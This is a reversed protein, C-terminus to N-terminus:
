ASQEEHSDESKETEFNINYYIESMKLHCNISSIHVIENLGGTPSM